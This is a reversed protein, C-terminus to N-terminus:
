PYIHAHILRVQTSVDRISGFQSNEPTPVPPKAAILVIEEIGTCKLFNLRNPTSSLLKSLACSELALYRLKEFHQVLVRSLADYWESDGSDRITLSVVGPHRTLYIVLKSDLSDVKITSPFVNSQSINPVM